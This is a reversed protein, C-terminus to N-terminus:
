ILQDLLNKLWKIRDQNDWVILSLSSHDKHKTSNIIM